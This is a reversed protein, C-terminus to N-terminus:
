WIIYSIIIAKNGYLYLISNPFSIELDYSDPPLSGSYYGYSDTSVSLKTAGNQKFKITATTAKNDYDVINGTITVIYDIPLSDTYSSGNYSLFAELMYNGSGKEPAIIKVEFVSDHKAVVTIEANDSDINIDVNDKNLEIVSGRNLAKLTVTINDNSEVWSKDISVIKKAVNNKRM